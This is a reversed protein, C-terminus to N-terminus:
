FRKRKLIEPKWNVPHSEETQFVFILIILLIFYAAGSRYPNLLKSLCSIRRLEMKLLLNYTFVATLTPVNQTKRRYM